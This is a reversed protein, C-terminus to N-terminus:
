NTTRPANTAAAIERDAADYDSLWANLVTALNVSQPDISAHWAQALQIRKKNNPNLGPLKLTISKPLAAGTAYIEVLRQRHERNLHQIEFPISVSDPLVTGDQILRQRRYDLSLHFSIRGIRPETNENEAPASIPARLFLQDEKIALDITMNLLWAKAQYPDENFGRLANRFDDTPHRIVLLAIWRNANEIASRTTIELSENDQPKEEPILSLYLIANQYTERLFRGEEQRAEREWKERAADETRRWQFADRMWTLVFQLASLLGGIVVGLLTKDM